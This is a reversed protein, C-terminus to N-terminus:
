AGVAAAAPVALPERSWVAAIRALASWGQYGRSWQMALRPHLRAFPNDHLSFGAGAMRQGLEFASREQDSFM